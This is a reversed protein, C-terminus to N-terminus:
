SRRTIVAKLNDMLDGTLRLIPHIFGVKRRKFAAYRATLEAFTAGGPGKQNEINRRVGDVMLAGIQKLASAVTGPEESALGRAIFRIATMADKDLYWPNRKRAAQVQAILANKAAGRRGGAIVGIETTGVAQTMKLLKAGIANAIQATGEMSVGASM